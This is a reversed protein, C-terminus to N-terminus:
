ERPTSGPMPEIAPVVGTTAPTSPGPAVTMSTVDTLEAQNLEVAPPLDEGHDNFLLESGVFGGTVLAVVGAAVAVRGGLSLEMASNDRM